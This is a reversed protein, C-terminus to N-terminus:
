GKCGGVYSGRLEGGGYGLRSFSVAYESTEVATLSGGEKILAGDM